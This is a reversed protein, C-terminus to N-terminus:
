SEGSTMGIKEIKADLAIAVDVVSAWNFRHKYVDPNVKVSKEWEEIRSNGDDDFVKYDPCAILLHVLARVRARRDKLSQALIAERQVRLEDARSVHVNEVTGAPANRRWYIYGCPHHIGSVEDATRTM